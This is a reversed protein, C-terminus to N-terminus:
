PGSFHCRGAYFYRCCSPLWTSRSTANRARLSLSLVASCSHAVRLVKPGSPGTLYDKCLQLTLILGCKRTSLFFMSIRESPGM